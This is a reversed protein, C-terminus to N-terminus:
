AKVPNRCRVWPVIVMIKSCVQEEERVNGEFDVCAKNKLIEAFKCGFASFFCM